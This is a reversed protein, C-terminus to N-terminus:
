WPHLLEVVGEEWTSHFLKTCLFMKDYMKRCLLNMIKM